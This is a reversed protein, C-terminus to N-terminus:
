EDGGKQNQGHMQSNYIQQYIACRGMLEDHTGIDAINGKEMVVIRDAQVVSAIRQAIIIKTCDPLATRLSKRISEDTATDVASTSDDLILVKPKKLLARAICLRQKQGGSVNVGGQGLDTLYGNPFSMIFDHACAARAAAEVQERTANADGWLLNDYITGSFLMNKQLVMSVSQRLEYLSYEKVDRGGLLVRGSLADYFRPILQVLTSKGDGTGGVIGITEGSSISLNINSLTLNDSSKTYSFSVNDFVIQGNEVKANNNPGVIDPKEAFIEKIRNYSVRSMALMVAFFSIMALHGIIQSTYSILGTLAGAHLDGVVMIRDGGLIFLIVTCAWMVGMQIPGVLTFIREAYVQAKQLGTAAANFKKRQQNQRVFSKVERVAVLNEQIGANMADGKKLVDTFRAHGLKILVFLAILLLPLAVVFTMSLQSDIRFAMIAGLIVMFPARILIRIIQSFANQLNTVDSTCRMVLSPVSFKDTNAFSFSEIKNFLNRRMNKSFGMSAVACTRAALSGFALSLLSCLVMLGGLVLIFRTNNAILEASFYEKLVFDQNKYLGGDVIAAMLMPIIVEMVVEGIMLLPTIITPLWYGKLSSFIVERRLARNIKKDSM